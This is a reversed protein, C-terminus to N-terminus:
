MKDLVSLDYDNQIDIVLCRKKIGNLTIGKTAQTKGALIRIDNKAYLLLEKQTPPLTRTFQRYHASFAKYAQEFHICLHSVADIIELRNNESKEQRNYAYKYDKNFIIAKNRALIPLSTMFEEWPSEVKLAKDYNAVFNNFSELVENLQTEEAINLLIQYGTYAIAINNICREKLQPNSNKVIEKKANFIEIVKDPNQKVISPLINSLYKERIENFGVVDDSKFKHQEFNCLLLRNLIEPRQPPQFNSSIMLTANISTKEKAIKDRNTGQYASKIFGEFYKDNLARRSIEDYIIPMCNCKDLSQWMSLVTSDGSHIYDEDYGFTFAINNLINTKGSSTTGYLYAVPFGKVNKIFFNRFPAMVGLGLILLPEISNSYGKYTTDLLKQTLENAIYKESRKLTPKFSIDENLVINNIM